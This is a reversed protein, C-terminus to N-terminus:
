VFVSTQTTKDVLRELDKFETNVPKSKPKIPTVNKKNDNIIVYNDNTIDIPTFSKITFTDDNNQKKKKKRKSHPIEKNLEKYENSLEHYYELLYDNENIYYKSNEDFLCPHFTLLLNTLEYKSKLLDSKKPFDIGLEGYRILNIDDNNFPLKPLFHNNNCEYSYENNYQKWFNNWKGDFVIYGINMNLENYQNWDINTYKYNAWTPIRRYLINYYKLISDKNIYECRNKSKGGPFKLLIEGNKYNITYNYERYSDLENNGNYHGILSTGIGLIFVVYEQNMMSDNLSDIYEKINCQPTILKYQIPLKCMILDNYHLTSYGSISHQSNARLKMNPIDNLRGIVRRVDHAPIKIIKNIDVKQGLKAM